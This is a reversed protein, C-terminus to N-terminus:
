TTLWEPQGQLNGELISPASWLRRGGKRGRRIEGKYWAFGTDKSSRFTWWESQSKWRASTLAWIWSFWSRTWPLGSDTRDQTARVKYNEPCSTVPLLQWWMDINSIKCCSIKMKLESFSLIKGAQLCVLLVLSLGAPCRLTVWAYQTSSPQRKVGKIFLILCVDCTRTAKCTDESLSFTVTNYLKNLWLILISNKVYSSCILSIFSVNSLSVALIRPLLVLQLCLPCCPFFLLCRNKLYEWSQLSVPQLCLPCSPFFLLYGNKIHEWSKPPIISLDFQIYKFHVIHHNSSYTHQSIVVVILNVCGGGWM